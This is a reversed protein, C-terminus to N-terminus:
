RHIGRSRGKPQREELLIRLAKRARFLRTKVAEDGIGLLRATEAVSLEAFYYFEVPWRLDPPLAFVSRRLEEARLKREVEDVPDAPATAGAEASAAEMKRRESSFLRFRTRVHNGAIAFLWAAFSEGQRFSSLSRFARIFVDQASDRADEDSRLRCRCFAEV